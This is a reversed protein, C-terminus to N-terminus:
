RSRQRHSTASILLGRLKAPVTIWNKGEGIVTTSGDPMTLLMTWTSGDGSAFVDLVGGTAAIGLAVPQEAYRSSLEKVM